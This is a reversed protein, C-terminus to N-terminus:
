SRSTINEKLAPVKTRPHYTCPSELNRKVPIPNQSQLPKPVNKTPRRRLRVGHRHLSDLILRRLIVVQLRHHILRQLLRPNQSRKIRKRTVKTEHSRTKDSKLTIQVKKMAYVQGDIKRKVKFM